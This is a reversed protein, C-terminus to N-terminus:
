IMLEFAHDNVYFGQYCENNDHHFLADRTNLHYKVFMACAIERFVCWYTISSYYTLLFTNEFRIDPIM